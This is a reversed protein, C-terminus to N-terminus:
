SEGGLTQALLDILARAEHVRSEKVSNAKGWDKKWVARLADRFGPVTNCLDNVQGSLDVIPERQQKTKPSEEDENAKAARESKSWLDLAAGFRMAANRLADGILEKEVDPKNTECSGVGLRTVGAITLRIWMTAIKERVTIVPLGQDTLGMPEWTWLPDVELLRSTLDAHGVYDLHVAPLGHWGGCENCKGKENDRKTPKPLRSISEPAFPVRLLQLAEINPQQETSSM